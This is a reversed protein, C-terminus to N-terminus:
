SASGTTLLRILKEEDAPQGNIALGGDNPSTKEFSIEYHGRYEISRKGRLTEVKVSSQSAYTLLQAVIGHTDKQAMTSRAGFQKEEMTIFWGERYHFFVYDLNENDYNRSDLPYPLQRLWDSYASSPM